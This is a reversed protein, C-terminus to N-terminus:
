GFKIYCSILVWTFLLAPLVLIGTLVTLVGTLIPKCGDYWLLAFAPFFCFACVSYMLQAYGLVLFVARHEPELHDSVFWSGAHHFVWYHLPIAVLIPLVILWIAIRRRGTWWSNRATNTKPSTILKDKVHGTSRTALM